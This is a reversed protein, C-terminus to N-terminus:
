RALLVIDDFFTRAESWTNDTDVMVAVASVATPPEGFFATYDSVFDRKVEAWQGVLSDGSVVVVMAVNESYPSPFTSGVPLDKAWVYCVARTDPDAFAGGFVVFVRAAYDDGRKERERGSRQVPREVKWRWSISGSMPADLMVARWLGSAARYSDARLVPGEDQEVVRFRNKRWALKQEQWREEWGEEFREELLPTGGLQAAGVPQLASLGLLPLTVAIRFAAHPM